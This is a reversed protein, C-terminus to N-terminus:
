KNQFTNKLKPEGDDNRFSTLDMASSTQM